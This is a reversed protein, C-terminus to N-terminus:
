IRDCESIFQNFAERKILSRNGHKLIFNYRKNRDDQVINRLTNEGIGTCQAAETITWTTKLYIPCVKDIRVKRYEQEM